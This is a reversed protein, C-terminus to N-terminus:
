CSAYDILINGFFFSQVVKAVRLLVPNLGALMQRAFEKDTEWWANKDDDSIIIV